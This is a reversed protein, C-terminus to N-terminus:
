KEAKPVQRPRQQDSESHRLRSDVPDKPQVENLRWIRDRSKVDDRCNRQDDDSGYDAKNHAPQESRDPIPQM